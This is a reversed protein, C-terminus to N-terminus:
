PVPCAGVVQDNRVRSSINLTRVVTVDQKSHAKLFIDFRRVNLQPCASGVCPPNCYNRLDVPQSVLKINFDDIVLTAPDTLPQWTGSQYVFNGNADLSFTAQGLLSQLIGDASKQFGFSEAPLRAPTQPRTPPVATYQDSSSYAYLAQTATDSPPSTNSYDSATMTQGPAWVTVEPTAWFGARRLDRLMLDGVARLDQQLQTERMLRSHELVQNTMMLSAAAVVILGVTIGVMLEVLSLGRQLRPPAAHRVFTLPM